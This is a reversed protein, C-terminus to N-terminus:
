FEFNESDQQFVNLIYDLGGISDIDFTIVEFDSKLNEALDIAKTSFQCWKSYFIIIKKSKNKVIFKTIKHM